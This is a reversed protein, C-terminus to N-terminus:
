DAPGAALTDGTWGATDLAAPHAIDPTDTILSRLQAESTMPSKALHLTRPPLRSIAIPNTLM